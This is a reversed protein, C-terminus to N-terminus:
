WTGLVMMGGGHAGVGASVQVRSEETVIALATMGILVGTAIGTGIVIDRALDRQQMANALLACDVSTARPGHACSAATFGREEMSDRLAQAHAAFGIAAVGSSALFIVGSCAAPGLVGRPSWAPYCWPFPGTAAPKGTSAAQANPAGGAPDGGTVAPTAPAPAPTGGPSEGAEVPKQSPELSLELHPMERANVHLTKSAAAYGELLASFVHRGPEVAVNRGEGRGLPRGDVVLRADTPTVTVFVIAVQEAVRGLAAQYRARREDGPAIGAVARKLHPHARAFRGAAEECLGLEGFTVASEELSAARSYADICAEWKRARSADAGAQLLGRLPTEESSPLDAAAASGVACTAAFLGVMGLARAFWARREM